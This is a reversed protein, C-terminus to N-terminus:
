SFLLNRVKEWEKDNRKSRSEFIRKSLTIRGSSKVIEYRTTIELALVEFNRKKTVNKFLRFLEDYISEFRTRLWEVHLWRSILQESFIIQAGVSVIALDTNRNLIAAIWLTSYAIIKIREIKAMQSVTDKSYFSNELAQAAIRRVPTTEYNNYYGDTQEDTLPINFAHSFFDKLRNDQARPILHLRIVLSVFCYFVVVLVFLSQTINYALPCATKSILPIAFSLFASGYFLVNGFLEAKEIPVYYKDRIPDIKEKKNDM